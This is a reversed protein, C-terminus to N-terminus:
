CYGALAGEVRGAGRLYADLAAGVVGGLVVGAAATCRTGGCAVQSRGCWCWQWLWVSSCRATRGKRVLRWMPTVAPGSHRWSRRPHADDPSWIQGGHSPSAPICPRGDGCRVATGGKDGRGAAAVASRVLAAVWSGLRRWVRQFRGSSGRGKPLPARWWLPRPRRCRSHRMSPRRGALTEAGPGGCSPRCPPPSPPTM